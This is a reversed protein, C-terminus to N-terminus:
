GEREVERGPAPCPFIFCCSLMRKPGWHEGRNSQEKCSVAFGRCETGRNNVGGRKENGCGRFVGRPIEQTSRGWFWVLIKERNGM